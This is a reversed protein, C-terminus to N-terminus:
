TLMGLLLTRTKMSLYMNYHNLISCLSRVLGGYSSSESLPLAEKMTAMRRMSKCRGHGSCNNPCKLRQCASGEFNSYCNCRGNIRDCRGQGSCEEITRDMDQESQAIGAWVPGAPCVRASCDPSKYLSIDLKSGWGEDCECRNDNICKGHGSCYNLSSCSANARWLLQLSTLGLWFLLGWM